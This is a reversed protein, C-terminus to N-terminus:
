IAGGRSHFIHAFEASIFCIIYYNLIQSSIPSCFFAFKLVGFHHPSSILPQSIAVYSNYWKNLPQHFNGSLFVHCLQSHHTLVTNVLSWSYFFFESFELLFCLSAVFQSWPVGDSECRESFMSPM